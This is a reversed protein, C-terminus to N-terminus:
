ALFGQAVKRLTFATALQEHPGKATFTLKPYDVGDAFGIETIVQLALLGHVDQLAHLYNLYNTLGTPAVDLIWPTM